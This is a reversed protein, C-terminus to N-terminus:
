YGHWSAGSKTWGGEVFVIRISVFTKGFRLDSTKNSRTEELPSFLIEWTEWFGPLFCTRGFILSAGRTTLLVMNFGAATPKKETM